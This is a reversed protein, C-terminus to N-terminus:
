PAKERRKHIIKEGGRLREKLQEVMHHVIIGHISEVMGMNFSPVHVNLRVMRGLKGGDYGTMGATILGHAEAYATARLVNPSNGSGSIAISVDGEECLNALQQEFVRDYATDNAWATLYPLNDTLSVAKIRKEMGMDSLTGKGLDECFHSALAASGGNGYLFVRHRGEYAEYICEILQEVLAKDMSEWARCLEDFYAHIVRKGEWQVPYPGSEGCLDCLLGIHLRERRHTIYSM